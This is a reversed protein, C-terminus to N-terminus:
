RKRRSIYLNGPVIPLVQKGQKGAIFVFEKPGQSIVTYGKGECFARFAPVEYQKLQKAAMLTGREQMPHCIYIGMVAILAGIKIGCVTM